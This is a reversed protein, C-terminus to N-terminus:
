APARWSRIRCPVRKRFRGGISERVVIFGRGFVQRALADSAQIDTPPAISETADHYVVAKPNPRGEPQGKEIESM